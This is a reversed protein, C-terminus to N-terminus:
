STPGHEGRADKTIPLSDHGLNLSRGTLRKTIFIIQGTHMSFHEVVHYIAELVSVERKQIFVREILRQSSVTDIIMMARLVTSSLKGSLQKGNLGGRAAFEEDRQRSDNEGGIGAVIWQTVNSCLHLVLNAASNENQGGRAWVQEDSLQFLCSIVRHSLQELRRSSFSLFLRANVGETMPSAIDAPM